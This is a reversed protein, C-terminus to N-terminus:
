LRQAVGPHGADRECTSAERALLWSALQQCALHAQPLGPSLASASSTQTRLHLQGWPWDQPLSCRTELSLTVPGSPTSQSMAGAGSNEFGQFCVQLVGYLVLSPAPLQRRGKM